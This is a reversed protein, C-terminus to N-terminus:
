EALQFKQRKVNAVEEKMEILMEAKLMEAKLMEAKLMEAKLMEAKLM